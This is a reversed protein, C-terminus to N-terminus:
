KEKEFLDEVVIEVGGLIDSVFSDDLGHAGEFSLFPKMDFGRYIYQNVEKKYPDVAWFEPVQYKEYLAAKLLLQIYDNEDELVEIILSPTGDVENNKLIDSKDATLFVVDPHVLDRQSLIVDIPSKLCIGKVKGEDILSSIHEFIINRIAQRAPNAEGRDLGWGFLVECTTGKCEEISKRMWNFNYGM